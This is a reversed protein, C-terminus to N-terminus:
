REGDVIRYARETARNLSDEVKRRFEELAPPDADRPVEVFDGIVFAIRSFPLNIAARDWSRVEVRRSTALAIPAIPAGSAQALKVVGMGARRAIGNSIDATMSVSTGAKLAGMMELFGSIGGKELTRAAERAASGRIVGVGLRQAVRANLEGDRHRSILVRVDHDRRRVTPLLFHQGHWMTIILPVSFDFGAYLGEPEAVVRSTARVFRIYRASASAALSQVFGSRGVRRWLGSRASRRPERDDGTETVM